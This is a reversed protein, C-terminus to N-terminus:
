GVAAGRSDGNSPMKVLEILRPDALSSAVMVAGQFDHDLSHPGPVAVTIAGSAVGARCGNGSDELVLMSPPAVGLSAAARLYIEPHPKGQQVDDGTWLFRLRDLVGGRRLIDEAFLRKSSTAVGYPIGQDDLLDLWPGLGPLPRLEADLYSAFIAETEELVTKWDSQLGYYDIFIQIAKPGPQGMMQRRVPDEYRYGWRRLYEDAARHYLPETDFMLGDMDLAVGQIQPLPDKQKTSASSQKTSPSPDFLSM